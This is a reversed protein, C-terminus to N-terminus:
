QPFRERLRANEYGTSRGKMAAYIIFALAVSPECVIGDYCLLLTGTRSSMLVMGM